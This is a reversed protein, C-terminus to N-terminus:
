WATAWTAFPLWYGGKRVDILCSADIVIDRM